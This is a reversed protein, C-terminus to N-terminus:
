RVVAFKDVKTGYPSDVHYIYIGSEIFQGFDTVQDWDAIAGAEESVEITKVLDGRVTYIRITCPNPINVFQIRDAEGPVSSGEGIVFPNPVVLVNELNTSPAFTTTFKKVTRNAFISSELSPVSKNGSLPNNVTPNINWTTRASDYATVAYYYSDGAVVATDKYKYSSESINYHAPDSVSIDAILSWPGIPLYDSRYIRYGILDYNGDDPDPVNESADTWTVVNSLEDRNEIDFSVDFEPPLPPDPHNFNNAYDFNIMKADLNIKQIGRQSITQFQTQDLAFKYDAGDVFEAVVIKISDGPALDWGGLSMLSWMRNSRMLPDVPSLVPRSSKTPDVIVEYKDEITGKGTMPGQYDQANDGADWSILNVKSEQGLKNPTAYVLKVGVFGPATYEGTPSGNVVPGFSPAWGFQPAGPENELKDAFAYIMKEIPNSIYWTNRAGPTLSPYNIVWSRSNSHIAYNLLGHFNYLTDVVERTPYANRIEDSINEFIYEHIIYNEYDKSGNWQHSTRKVRLPLQRFADYNTVYLPNYEWVTEIIEDGGNQSYERRYNEYKKHKRIIYKSSAETGISSSYIAWDEVALVSDDETKCGVWFGGTLLHSPSGGINENIWSPDFGPWDLGIGTKQWNSFIGPGIKGLYISQWLKGRNFILLPADVDNQAKVGSFFSLLFLILFLKRMNKEFEM